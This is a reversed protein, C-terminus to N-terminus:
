RAKRQLAWQLNNRALQDDPKLRVAQSAAQIGDDWRQMSNYAAAINNYAEAYDARLELARNAASICESYRGFQYLMHSLELWAEPTPRERVVQEAAVLQNARNAGAAAFRLADPDGPALQLTEAALRDLEQWNRLDSYVQMLLRRSDFSYRNLRLATELHGAAENTRGVARLWRAYFFLPDALRPALSIARLFHREAEVARNLGGNAVGLNVELSWYNPTYVRAREFWMLATAYDGRPLFVLGYNMLGRGNRPSKEAVDRWLSEETQWVRNRAHTGAAAAILVLVMGVRAFRNWSQNVTLGATKRFLALRLGWVVALSLGVFPFFMRHDNTVEALPMISTPVLALLFWTIGFAIPRAVPSRSARMALAILGAV